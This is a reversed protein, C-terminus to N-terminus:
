RGAATAAAEIWVGLNKRGDDKVWDYVAYGKPLPNAGATDTESEQPNGPKPKKVNHIRVGLLGKGLAISQEIEYQVYERSATEAGILVVTVSTGDMQDDIWDQIEEKTKLQVEEWEAKDWFGPVTDASTVVGSNRVQSARWADREHHFSFFTQRAM